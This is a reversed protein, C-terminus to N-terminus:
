LLHDAVFAHSLVQLVNLEECLMKSNKSVRGEVVVLGGGLLKRYWPYHAKKV